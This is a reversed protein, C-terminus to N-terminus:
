YSDIYSDQGPLPFTLCWVGIGSLYVSSCVNGTSNTLTCDHLTPAQICKYYNSTIYADNWPGTKRDDITAAGAIFLM